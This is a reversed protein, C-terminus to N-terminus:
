KFKLCCQVGVSPQYSQISYNELVPEVRLSLDNSVEFDYLHADVFADIVSVVYLAVCGFISLDRTRRYSTTRSKLTNTLRQKEAPTDKYTPMLDMYSNTSPDSDTIDFYANRYDNYMRGNWSILYTFALVGGYLIPLKWYSRNYIQGLGPCAIAYWTAKQPNPLFPEQLRLKRKDKRSLSLSSEQNFPKPEEQVYITDFDAKVVSDETAWLDVVTSDAPELKSANGVFSFALFVFFIVIKLGKVNM